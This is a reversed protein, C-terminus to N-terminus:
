EGYQAFSRPNGQQQQSENIDFLADAITGEGIKFTINVAQSSGGPQAMGSGYAGGGLNGANMGSGMAGPSIGSAGGGFQQRAITSIQVGGAIVAAAAAAPGAVLGLPFGFGLGARYAAMAAAATDIVASSIAAAKGIKFMKRNETNMLSSINGFTQSILSMKGLQEQRSIALQANKYEESNALLWEHQESELERQKEKEDLELQWKTERGALEAATADAKIEASMTLYESELDLKSSFLAEQSALEGEGFYGGGGGQTLDPAESAGEGMLAMDLYLEDLESSGMKLASPGKKRGAGRPPKPDPTPTPTPIPSPRNKDKVKGKAATLIERRKLAVAMQLQFERLKKTDFTLVAGIQGLINYMGTASFAWDIMTGDTTMLWENWVGMGDNIDRLVGIGNVIGNAWHKMMGLSTGMNNELGYVVGRLTEVEVTLGDARSILKDMAESQFDVLRTTSEVDIGYQKLATQRGTTLAKTLQKVRTTAGEPGEGLKQAMDAGLVTIARMLKPTVQMGSASIQAVAEMSAKTDVLGKNAREMAVLAVRQEHTLKRWNQAMKEAEQSVKFLQRGVMAIAGAVLLFSAKSKAAGTSSIAFIVSTGVMGGLSM